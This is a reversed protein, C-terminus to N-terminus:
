NAKLKLNTLGTVLALKSELDLVADIRQNLTSESLLRSSSAKSADDFAQKLFNRYAEYQDSHKSHNAFM